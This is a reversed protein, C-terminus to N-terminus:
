ERSMRRNIYFRTQISIQRGLGWRCRFFQLVHTPASAYVKLAIYIIERVGAPGNIQSCQPM